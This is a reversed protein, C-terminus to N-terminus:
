TVESCPSRGEERGLATTWRLEQGQSIFSSVREIKDAVTVVLERRNEIRIGTPNNLDGVTKSERGSRVGASEFSLRCRKEKRRRSTRAEGQKILIIRLTSTLILCTWGM